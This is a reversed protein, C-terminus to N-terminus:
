PMVHATMMAGVTKVPMVEFPAALSYPNHRYIPAAAVRNNYSSTNSQSNSHNTNYQQDAPGSLSECDDDYHEEEQLCEDQHRSVPTDPYVGQEFSDNESLSQHTPATYAPVNVSANYAPPPPLKSAAEAREIIRYARKFAKIAEETFLGDRINMEATRMEADGHAFMCRSEYPCFGQTIFNRCVKTKFREALIHREDQLPIHIGSAATPSQPQPQQYQQPQQQVQVPAQVYQPQHQQMPNHHYNQFSNQHHHQHFHNVAFVSNM